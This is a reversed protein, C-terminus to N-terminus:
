AIKDISFLKTLLNKSDSEIREAAFCYICNLNCRSTMNFYIARLTYPNHVFPAAPIKFLGESRVEDVFKKISQASINKANEAFKGITKELSQTETYVKVLLVGNLNTVIWSPVLPNLILFKEGRQYVKLIDEFKM